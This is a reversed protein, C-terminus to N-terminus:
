AWARGIESFPVDADYRGPAPNWRLEESAGVESTYYGALTLEKLQRFFPPADPNVEVEAAPPRANPDGGTEGTGARNGAAAQSGPEQEDDMADGLDGQAGAVQQNQEEEVNYTGEQGAEAADESLAPEAASLDYTEADLAEVFARQAEEDLDAFSGGEARADIETLSALFANRDEPAYWEALMKDIFQPVGAEAAGPTDTAPIIRDVLAALTRQQGEGLAQYAYSAAAEGSPTTCGGLLGSLVPATAIGGLTLGIRHIAQRRTILTPNMIPNM